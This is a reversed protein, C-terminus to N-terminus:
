KYEAIAILLINYKINFSLIIKLIFHQTTSISDHLKLSTIEM